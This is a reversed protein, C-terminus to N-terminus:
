KAAKGTGACTDCGLGGCVECLGLERRQERAVVDDFFPSAAALLVLSAGFILGAIENADWADLQFPTARCVTSKHAEPKKYTVIRRGNEYSRSINNKRSSFCRTSVAKLHTFRPAKLLTRTRTLTPPMM